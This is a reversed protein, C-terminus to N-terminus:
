SKKGRMRRRLAVVAAGVVVVVAAPLAWPPSGPADQDAAVPASSPTLAAGQPVWTVTGRLADRVGDRIVPVEWTDVVTSSGAELVDRPPLEQPYRLRADLWTWSTAAPDVLEFRPATSPPGTPLGRAQRDEVHTRSAVNVEVGQPGMRLFPEGERGLVELPLRDPNSLFLGPLMGPLAQVTLGEPAEDATVLFAGRLPTFRVSGRVAVDQGGYRLPVTWEALRQEQDVDAPAQVGDPHLRHDYWGWSTGSSIQAWRPAVGPAAGDPVAGAAGEPNSTTFFEPSALNAEVGAASLRLFPEGGTALVELVTATPNDVVLQAAIGARAQVVVQAPLAPRVEDVVTVVRPDSSHAQAAPTATGVLVLVAAALAIGAIRAIPQM